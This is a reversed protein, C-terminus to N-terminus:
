RKRRKKEEEKIKNLFDKITLFKSNDLIESDKIKKKLKLNMTNIDKIFIEFVEGYSLDLFKIIEANKEDYIKEILKINNEPTTSSYKGSINTELYIDKLPKDWLKLNYDKGLNVNMTSTLKDFKVYRLIKNLFNHFNNILFTKIKIMKNDEANKTHSGKIEFKKKRGRKKIDNRNRNKNVKIEINKIIKSEERKTKNGLFSKSIDKITNDNIEKKEKLKNKKINELNIWFHLTNLFNFQISQIMKQIM